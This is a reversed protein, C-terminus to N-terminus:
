TGKMGSLFSKIVFRGLLISALSEIFSIQTTGFLRLIPINWIYLLLIAPIVYKIMIEPVVRSLTLIIGALIKAFRNETDEESQM